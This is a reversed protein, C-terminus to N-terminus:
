LRLKPPLMHSGGASRKADKETGCEVIQAPFSISKVPVHKRGQALERHCASSSELYDVESPADGILCGEVLACHRDTEFLNPATLGAPQLWTEENEQTVAISPAGKRVFDGARHEVGNLAQVSLAGVPKFKQFGPVPTVIISERRQIVQFRPRALPPGSLSPLRNFLLQESHQFGCAQSKGRDAIEPTPAEGRCLHLNM